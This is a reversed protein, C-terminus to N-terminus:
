GGDGGDGLDLLGLVGGSSLFIIGMAPTSEFVTSGAPTAGPFALVFLLAGGGGLLPLPVVEPELLHDETEDKNGAKGEKGPTALTTAAALM